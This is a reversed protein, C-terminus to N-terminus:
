VFMMPVSKAKVDPTTGTTEGPAVHKHVLVPCPSKRVVAEAVSGMLVRTLGTRGHTSMVILDVREEQAIKTIVEQPDGTLVRHEVPISPDTPIIKKVDELVEERTPESVGYYFEGGGYPITPEQIHVVLLKANWDKALVCAMAFAEESALSFDTPFLIKKAQM